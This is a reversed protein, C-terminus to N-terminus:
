VHKCIKVHDVDGFFWYAANMEWRNDGDQSLQRLTISVDDDDGDNPGGGETAVDEELKLVAQLRDLSDDNEYLVVFSTWEKSLILDALAQLM